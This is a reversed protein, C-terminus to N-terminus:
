TALDSFSPDAHTRPIVFQDVVRVTSTPESWGSGARWKSPFRRNHSMQFPEKPEMDWDPDLM